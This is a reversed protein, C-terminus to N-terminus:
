TAQNSPIDLIGDGAATGEVVFGMKHSVRTINIDKIHLNITYPALTNLVETVGEGAGLSNVTDLCIGVSGPDTDQIIRELLSCSFRDHNEIALMVDCEKLLPVVKKIVEKIEEEGPHYNDDDIVMRIFPSSLAQAITIYHKINELTLGRTGPQLEIAFANARDKLEALEEPSLLHLPMNDGFQVNKIHNTIAFQLLEFASLKKFPLFGDIGTGM